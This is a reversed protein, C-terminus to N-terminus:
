VVQRFNSRYCHHAAINSYSLFHFLVVIDFLRGYQVLSTPGTSCCKTASFVTASIIRVSIGGSQAVSFNLKCVFKCMWCFCLPIFGTSISCIFANM